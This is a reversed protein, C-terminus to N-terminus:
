RSLDELRKCWDLNSTLARIQKCAARASIAYNESGLVRSMAARVDMETAEPELSVGFGLEKVEQGNAVQDSGLFNCPLVVCKKGYYMALMLTNFGGHFVLLDAEELCSLYQGEPLHRAVTAEPFEKILSSPDVLGTNCTVSLGVHSAAQLVLRYREESPCLTGFSVLGKPGLRRSRVLPFDAQTSSDLPKRLMGLFLVPGKFCPSRRSTTWFPIGTILNLHPSYLVGPVEARLQDGLRYHTLVSAVGEAESSTEGRAFVLNEKSLWADGQFLPIGPLGALTCSVAVSLYSDVLL